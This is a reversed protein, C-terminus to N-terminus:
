ERRAPVAAMGCGREERPQGLPCLGSAPTIVSRLMAMVCGYCLM